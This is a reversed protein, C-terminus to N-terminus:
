RGNIRDALTGVAVGFFYSRNWKLIVRYNNFVVFAKGKPGDPRVVSAMLDPEHALDRGEPCGVGLAQWKGLPKRIKLGLLAADFQKPLRVEFGWSQDKVWGSTALYNAASAFADGLNNWIDIKGDGDYDVGFAHFTSPMFQLQGMAGAWSGRMKDPSIHADDLIRLAYILERRFLASRRGDYALTAISGIIPFDGSLRGYNTEVGWFAVLFRPAVSYHDCLKSLLSRHKELEKRGRIVRRKPTVRDLYEDLTM